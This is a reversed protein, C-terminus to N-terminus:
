EHILIVKEAGKVIFYGKPDYPCESLAALEQYSKNSLVCKSSGLMIPLRGIKLKEEVLNNDWVYQVRLYMEGSYTISRM